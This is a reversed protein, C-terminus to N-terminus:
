CLAEPPEVQLIEYLMTVDASSLGAHIAEQLMARYDPQVRFRKREYYDYRLYAMFYYYIGKPEISLAANLYEEAKRIVPLQQLFAKKGGLLCVAAYLYTDANDFDDEIAKEFAQLAKDYLKLRLYCMAVSINLRTDDPHEALAKRYNNVRKNLQISNMNMVSGFTRIVIRERCYECEQQDINVRAGCGPCTLEVVEYSM